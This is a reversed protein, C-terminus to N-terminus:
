RSIDIKKGIYEESVRESPPSVVEEEIVEKAAAEEELSEEPAAENEEEGIKLSEEENKQIEGVREDAEQNKRVAKEATEDRQLASAEINQAIERSIQASRLFLNQLHIPEVSM